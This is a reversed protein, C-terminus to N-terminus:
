ANEDNNSVVEEIMSAFDVTIGGVTMKLMATAGTTDIMDSRDKADSDVDLMIADGGFMNPDNWTGVSSTNPDEYLDFGLGFMGGKAPSSSAPM